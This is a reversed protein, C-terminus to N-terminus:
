SDHRNDWHRAARLHSSTSRGFRYEALRRELDELAKQPTAGRGRVAPNVQSYAKWAGKESKVQALVRVRVTGFLVVSRLQELM